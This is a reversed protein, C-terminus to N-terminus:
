KILIVKESYKQISSSIFKFLILKSKIQLSCTKLIISLM